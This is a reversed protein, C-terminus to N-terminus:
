HAFIDRGTWGALDLRVRAPLFEFCSKALDMRGERELIRDLADRIRHLHLVDNAAYELQAASLEEAGWDTSQQEKSLEVDLLERALAKLGHQDTYTRAIKSAIKTCHVPGTMVGLTELLIAIDFRAFHFLKLVSSDQLMRELNPASTQGKAIRVLVANGDGTSLQVLCLRDRRSQLGWQKLTWRLQIAPM